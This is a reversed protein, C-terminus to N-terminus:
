FFDQCYPAYRTRMAADWRPLAATDHVQLRGMRAAGTASVQGFLLMALTSVPMSLEPADAGRTVTGGDPGTELRWTGRNWDCLDDSIEFTLAEEVPYPRLPLAKELDVIRAVMGSGPATINLRKPELLLHPLPDDPPVKGVTIMNVLDYRSLYTWVAHYAAPTLWAMEAVNLMQGMLADHRTDRDVSYVLYGLTEGNEEYIVKRQKAAADPPQYTAYPAGPISFYSDRRLLWANRGEGFRHYIDLMLDADADTAPRFEGTPAPLHLLTADRPEIAYSRMGSVVAYGYRQYIATRSAFLGAISREGEERMRRFHETVIRRLHGRRRYVPLTGVMTVGALPAEAGNLLMTLPWVGYSTTMVGDTFAALTWGPPMPVHMQSDGAFVTRVIENYADLEEPRIQRIEVSMAHSGAAAGPM